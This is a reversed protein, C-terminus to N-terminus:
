ISAAPATEGLWNWNKMAQAQAAEIPLRPLLPTSSETLTALGSRFAEADIPTASVVLPSALGVAEAWGFCKEHYALLLTPTRVCYAFVAGHLRMTILGQLTALERLIQVPDLAYRVRRVPLAHQLRAALLDHQAADGMVPHSNMDILVAESVSGRRAADLLAHTVVDLRAAEHSGDGGLCQEYPCLIVGLGRRSSSSAADFGPAAVLPLLPAIDGTLEIRASPAVERAREFSQRDRCGVFDLSLLLERCRAEAEVDRFPGVGVGVAFHPGGAARRVLDRFRGMMPGSHFNSGGAFVVHQARWALLSEVMGQIRWSGRIADPVLMPLVGGWPPRRSTSALVITAGCYRRVGWESIRLFADDGANQQGFYGLLVARTM